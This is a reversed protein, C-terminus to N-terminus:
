AESVNKERLRIPNNKNPKKSYSKMYTLIKFVYM